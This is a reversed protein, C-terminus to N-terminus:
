ATFDNVDQECFADSEGGMSIAFAVAELSLFFGASFFAPSFPL